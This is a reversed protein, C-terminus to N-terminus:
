EILAATPRRLTVGWWKNSKPKGLKDKSSIMDVFKGKPEPRENPYTERLWRKYEPYLETATVSKTLDIETVYGQGNCKTCVSTDAILACRDCKKDIKPNELKESLFNTYPDHKKWYDSMWNKVYRPLILGEKRYTKYHFVAMWLLAAALRPINDEFRDDMKYTKLKIQEEIEEPLNQADAEDPKLWRGEFPIMAFRNRTAEDMGKVEPVINLVMTAKFSTEFSGGDENCGRAFFSDGGTVKKIRAGKFSTDDDPEASFAVRSNKAQALEPNPGSGSKQQASYFEPPLDCYYDGMMQRIMKQYVSKSGNTDGIWMRSFRKQM